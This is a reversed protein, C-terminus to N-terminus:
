TLSVGAGGNIFDRHFIRTRTREQFWPLQFSGVLNLEVLTKLLLLTNVVYWLRLNSSLAAPLPAQVRKM